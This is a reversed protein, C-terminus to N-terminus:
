GLYATSATLDATWSAMNWGPSRAYAMQARLVGHSEVALWPLGMTVIM